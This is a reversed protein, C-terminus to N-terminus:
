RGLGAKVNAMDAGFDGPPPLHGAFQYYCILHGVYIGLVFVTLFISGTICVRASRPPQDETM